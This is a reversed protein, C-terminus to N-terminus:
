SGGMVRRSTGGSMAPNTSSTKPLASPKACLEILRKKMVQRTESPTKGLQVSHVLLLDSSELAQAIQSRHYVNEYNESTM